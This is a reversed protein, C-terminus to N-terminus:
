EWIEAVVLERLEGLLKKETGETESVFQRAEEETLKITMEFAKPEMSKVKM